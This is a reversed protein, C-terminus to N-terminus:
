GNGSPPEPLPMWHTVEAFAHSTHTDQDLAEVDINWVIEDQELGWDTGALYGVFQGEAYFCLVRKGLEPLREGVPIWHPMIFVDLLGKALEKAMVECAADSIERM